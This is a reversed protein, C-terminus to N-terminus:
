DLYFVKAQKGDADIHIGISLGIAACYVGHVALGHHEVTTSAPYSPPLFASLMYRCRNLTVYAEGNRDYKIDQWRASM